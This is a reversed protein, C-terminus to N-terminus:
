AATLSKAAELCEAPNPLLHLNDGGSWAYAITGDTDVLFAGRTNLPRFAGLAEDLLVGFAKAAEWEYDSLFAYTQGLDSAWAKLAFPSDHSVGIVRVGAATFEDLLAGFGCVQAECGQGKELSGTYAFPFFHFLIPGEALLERSTVVDNPGRVLRFPAVTTGTAATVDDELPQRRL